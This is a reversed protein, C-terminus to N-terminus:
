FEKLSLLLMHDHEAPPIGGLVYYMKDCQHSAVSDLVSLFLCRAPVGKMDLFLITIEPYSILPLFRKMFM